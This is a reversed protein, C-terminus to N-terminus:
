EGKREWDKESLIVKVSQPTGNALISPKVRGAKESSTRELHQNYRMSEFECERENWYKEFWDLLVDLGFGHYVKGYQMIFAQSLFFKLEHLNLHKVENTSLFSIAVRYLKEKTMNGSTSLLDNFNVFEGTLYNSLERKASEDKLIETITLSENRDWTQISASISCPPM